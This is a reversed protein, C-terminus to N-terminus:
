KSNENDKSDKEKKNDATEDDNEDCILEARLKEIKRDDIKEVSFLVNEWKVAPTEGDEPIRGLLEIVMAGITEFPSNEDAEKGLAEMVDEYDAKGLIEFVGDSIETIEEAEDDYEDQISGVISEIIDELTVVGATGGYEDVAVAMQIKKETMEKFLEGCKHTEPVFLIERMFDKVTRSDASEHFVLTLLDKAFIVGQIDDITEKYVPIRSFGSEIALEVAEKIPANEEIAEVETRHTMVDSVEIDDFEFINSIMEAQSEEIAGTENVADVMMLIEEETVADNKKMSRVGILRLFVTSIGNNIIELPKFLALWVRYVGSVTLVFKDGVRGSSVLRKPINIGFVSIFLAFICIVAAFSILSVAYYKGGESSQFIKQTFAEAIPEFFYVTGLVTILVIMITRSILNAAMFRGPQELMKMLRAARKDQEAMKKLKADNFEVAANECACFFAMVLAAAICVIFGTSLRGADDM